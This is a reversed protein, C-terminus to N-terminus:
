PQTAKKQYCRDLTQRKRQDGLANGSFGQLFQAGKSPKGYPLLGYLSRSWMEYTMFYTGRPLKTDVAISPRDAQIPSAVTDQTAQWTTGNYLVRRVGAFGLESVIFVHRTFGIPLPAFPGVNSRATWVGGVESGCYDKEMEFPNKM